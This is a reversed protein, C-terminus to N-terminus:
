GGGTVQFEVRRNEARGEKTENGVLPQSEGLAEVELRASIGNEKFLQAIVGARKRSLALNYAKSGLSDTHGCIRIELGTLDRAVEVLPDVQMQSERSLSVSDFEFNLRTAQLEQKPPPATEPITLEISLELGTPVLKRAQSQLEAKALAHPVEGSLSIRGAHLEVAGHPATQSLLRLLPFLESLYPLSSIDSKAQLESQL